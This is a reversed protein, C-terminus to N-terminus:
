AVSEPFVDLGRAARDAECERLFAIACTACMSHSVPLAGRQLVALCWACEVQQPTTAVSVCDNEDSLDRDSLFPPTM